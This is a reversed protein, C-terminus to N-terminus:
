LQQKKMTITRVHNESEFSEVHGIKQAYLKVGYNRHVMSNMSKIKELYLM